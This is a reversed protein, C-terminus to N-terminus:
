SPIGHVLFANVWAGMRQDVAPYSLCVGSGSSRGDFFAVSVQPAWRPMCVNQKLVITLVGGKVGPPVLTVHRSQLYLPVLAHILPGGIVM